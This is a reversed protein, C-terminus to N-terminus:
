RAEAKGTRIVPKLKNANKRQEADHKMGIALIVAIGILPIVAYWILPNM